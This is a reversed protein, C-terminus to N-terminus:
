DDSFEEGLLFQCFGLIYPMSQRYILFYKFEIILVLIARARSKAKKSLQTPGSGAKAWSKEKGAGPCITGKLGENLGATKFPM